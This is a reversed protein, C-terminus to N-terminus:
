SVNTGEVENSLPTMNVAMQIPQIGWPSINGAEFINALRERARFVRVKVNGESIGLTKGIEKYNLEAYEKLILVVRLNEPLLNLANQIEARIEKKLVTMEGTEQVRTDERFAKQYAKREREKRKAYNLAANKVVRILWYKADDLSPFNMNKEYLRFFADQCLDEAAEESNAIRYAVKFLIPFVTNYLKHFEIQSLPIEQM